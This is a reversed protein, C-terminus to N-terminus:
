ESRSSSRSRSRKEGGDKGTGGDVSTGGYTEKGIVVGILSGNGGDEESGTGRDVGMPADGGVATMATAAALSTPGVVQGLVSCGFEEGTMGTRVPRECIM